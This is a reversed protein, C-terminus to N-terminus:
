CRKTDARSEGVTVKVERWLCLAVRNDQRLWTTHTGRKRDSRQVVNQLKCRWECCVLDELVFGEFDVVFLFAEQVNVVDFNVGNVCVADISECDFVKRKFVSGVCKHESYTSDVNIRNCNALRRTQPEDRSTDFSDFNLVERHLDLNRSLTVILNM